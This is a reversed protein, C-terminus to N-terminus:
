DETAVVEERLTELYKNIETTDFDENDKDTETVTRYEDDFPNNFKVQDTGWLENQGRYWWDGTYWETNIWTTYDTTSTTSTTFDISNVVDAHITLPTTVVYDIPM